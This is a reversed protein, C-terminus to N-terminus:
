HLGEATGIPSRRSDPAKFAALGTAGRGAVLTNVEYTGEYRALRLFDDNRVAWIRSQLRQGDILHPPQLSHM